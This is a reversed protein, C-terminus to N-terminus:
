KKAGKKIKIRDCPMAISVGQEGAPRVMVVDGVFTGPDPIAVVELVLGAGFVDEVVDGVKFPCTM